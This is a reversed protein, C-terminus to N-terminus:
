SSKWRRNISAPPLSRRAANTRVNRACDSGYTRIASWTAGSKPGGSAQLMTLYHSGELGIVSLGGFSEHLRMETVRYRSDRLDQGKLTLWTRIGKTFLSARNSMVVLRFGSM